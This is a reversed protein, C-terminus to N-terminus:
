QISITRGELSVGELSFISTDATKDLEQFNAFVKYATLNVSLKSEKTEGYPNIYTYDINISGKLENNTM